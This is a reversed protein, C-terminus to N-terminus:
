LPANEFWSALQYNTLATFRITEWGWIFIYKFGTLM